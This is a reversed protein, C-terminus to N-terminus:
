GTLTTRTKNEKISWTVSEILRFIERFIVWFVLIIEVLHDEWSRIFIDIMITCVEGAAIVVAVCLSLNMVWWFINGIVGIVVGIWRCLPESEDGVLFNNGIVGIVM